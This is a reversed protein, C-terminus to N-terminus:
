EISSPAPVPVTFTVVESVALAVMVTVLAGCTPEADILTMSWFSDATSPAIM